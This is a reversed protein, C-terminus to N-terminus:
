GTIGSVWLEIDPNNFFVIKVGGSKPTEVSFTQLNIWINM